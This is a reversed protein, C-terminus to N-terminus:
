PSTTGVLLRISVNANSSSLVLLGNNGAGSSAWRGNGNGTGGHDLRICVHQRPGSGHLYTDAYMSGTGADTDADTDPYANADTNTGPRRGYMNRPDRDRKEKGLCAAYLEIGTGTGPDYLDGDCSQVNRRLATDDCQRQELKSGYARCDRERSAADVTVSNQRPTVSDFASM